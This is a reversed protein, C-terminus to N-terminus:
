SSCFPLLSQAEVAGDLFVTEGLLLALSQQRPCWKLRVTVVRTESEAVNGSVITNDLCDTSTPLPAAGGCGASRQALFESSRPWLLCNIHAHTHRVM